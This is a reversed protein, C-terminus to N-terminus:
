SMRPFQATRTTKLVLFGVRPDHLLFRGTQCTQETLVFEHASAAASYVPTRRFLFSPLDDETSIAVRGVELPTRFPPFWVLPFRRLQELQNNVLPLPPIGFTWKSTRLQPPKDETPEHGNVRPPDDKPHDIM